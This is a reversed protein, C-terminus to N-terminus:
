KGLGNLFRKVARETDKEEELLSIFRSGIIGGSAYRCAAEFTTRNSIGFGIM